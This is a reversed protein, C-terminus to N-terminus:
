LQPKTNMKKPRSNNNLSENFQNIKELGLNRCITLSPCMASQVKPVKPVNSSM